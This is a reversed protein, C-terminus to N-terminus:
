MECFEWCSCMGISISGLSELHRITPELRHDRIFQAPNMDAHDQWEPLLDRLYILDLLRGGSHAALAIGMGKYASALRDPIPWVNM